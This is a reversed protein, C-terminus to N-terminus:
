AGPSDADLRLHLYHVPEDGRGTNLLLTYSYQFGLREYLTRARPNSEAAGLEVCPLNLSRAAGTLYQILATGFGRSRCSDSIILDSIEGCKGWTLIQGYGNLTKGDEGVVVVGIGRNKEAFRQVQRLHERCHVEPIDHWCDARLAPIDEITM